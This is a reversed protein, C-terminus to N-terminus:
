LNEYGILGERNIYVKVYFFGDTLLLTGHSTPRFSGAPFSIENGSSFSIAEIRINNPYRKVTTETAESLSEGDFLTYRNSEVTLGRAVGKLLSEQQQFYLDTVLQSSYNSLRREQAKQIAVPFVIMSLILLIGMNVLLEFLSFCKYKKQKKTRLM